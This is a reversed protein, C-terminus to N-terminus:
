ICMAYNAAANIIHLLAFLQFFLLANLILQTIIVMMVMIMMM